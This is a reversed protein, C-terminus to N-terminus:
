ALIGFRLKIVSQALMSTEVLEPDEQVVHCRIRLELATTSVGIIAPIRLYLLMEVRMRM